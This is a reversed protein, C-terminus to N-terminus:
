KMELIVRKYVEIEPYDPLPQLQYGDAAVVRESIEVAGQMIASWGYNTGKWEEHQARRLADSLVVFYAPKEAAIRQWAKGVDAAVDPRTLIFEVSTYEPGAGRFAGPRKAAHYKVQPAYIRYGSTALVVEADQGAAIGVIAEVLEIERSPNTQIPRADWLERKLFGFAILNVVGLQVLLAGLVVSTLWDKRINTLSVGLILVVFGLLPLPYRSTQHESLALIGLALPIQLAAVLLPVGVFERRAAPTRALTSLSLLLLPPAVTTALGFRRLFSTWTWFKELYDAGRLGGYVYNFSFTGYDIADSLNRRYWLLTSLALPGALAFHYAHRLELRLREGGLKRLAWGLAVAGPILCFAPSSMTALMALCTAATLQLVIVPADWRRSCAMIYVFWCVAALQVPQVYLQKSVDVFLPAAAAGASATIAILQSKSYEFLAEFVFFLALAQSLFTLLLLGADINGIREGIPVFFQGVWPLIPPKPRISLAGELWHGPDHTFLNHLELAAYGYEATDAVWFGRDLHIWVLNPLIMAFLLVYGLPRGISTETVVVKKKV